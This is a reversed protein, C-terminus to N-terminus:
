TTTEPAKEGVCHSSESLQQHTSETVPTSNIAVRVGPATSEKVTQQSDDVCAVSMACSTSSRTSDATLLSTFDARESERQISIATGARRGTATPRGTVVHVTGLSLHADQSRGTAGLVSTQRNWSTLMDNRVVSYCALRIRTRARQFRGDLRAGERLEGTELVSRLDTGRSEVTSAVIGGLLANATRSLTSPSPSHGQLAAASTTKM